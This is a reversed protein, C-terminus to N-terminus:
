KKIQNYICIVSDTKMLKGTHFLVCHAEWGKIKVWYQLTILELRILHALCTVHMPFYFTYGFM